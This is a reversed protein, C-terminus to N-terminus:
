VSEKSCKKILALHRKETKDRRYSFFKSDCCTCFDCVSIKIIGHSTLQEIAVSTMDLFGNTYHKLFNGGVDKDVKYCCKKIHPSIAAHIDTNEFHSLVQAIINNKLGRWGAHAIAIKKSRPDYLYIAMCDATFVGVSLDNQITVFGDTNPIVKNVDSYRAEHIHTSHKQQGVVLNNFQRRNEPNKMDGATALTFIAEVNWYRWSTEILIDESSKLEWM